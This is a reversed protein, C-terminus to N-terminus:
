QFKPLEHLAVVIIGVFLNLYWLFFVPRKFIKPGFLGVFLLIINLAVVMSFVGTISM